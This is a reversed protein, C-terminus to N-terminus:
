ESNEGNQNNEKHEFIQCNLWLTVDAQKRFIENKNLDLLSDQALIHTNGLRGKYDKCKNTKLIFSLISIYVSIFSNHLHTHSYIHM